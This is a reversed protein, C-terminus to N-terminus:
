LFVREIFWYLGVCGIVVSLPRTIRSHYYDKNGFWFGICAFCVTVVAIQGLEVGINFGLLATVFHNNDLGFEGLVSAFGLGHLLGFLFVMAIRWRNLKKTLFNEVCVFVISLAILPEVISAPVSLVGTAGLALTISHAVTFTTIQLVLSRFRTTLLFLGIVFLIHDLGKPLIHEFGVVIYNSLVSLVSQTSAQTFEIADSTQGPSLLTAYDLDVKDSNARVIAEGFSKSWQWQVSSEANSLATNMKITTDRPNATDGVAQIAVNSISLPLARGENSTITINSLFREKFNEFEMALAQEDLARLANYQVANESTETDEHDPGIDAILSELNVVMDVSLDSNKSAEESSTYSLNIIAPRIEHADAASPIALLSLIGATFALLALSSTKIKNLLM